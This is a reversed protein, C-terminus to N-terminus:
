KSNILRPSHFCKEPGFFGYGWGGSGLSGQRVQRLLRSDGYYDPTAGHCVLGFFPAFRFTRM